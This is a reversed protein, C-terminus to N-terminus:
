QSVYKLGPLSRLPFVTEMYGPIQGLATPGLLIGGIVEAVVRPQHVYRLLVGLTNSVVIILVMQFLLLSMPNELPSHGDFITGSVTM